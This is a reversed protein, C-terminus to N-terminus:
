RVDEDAILLKKYKGDVKSVPQLKIKFKQSQEAAVGGSAEFIYFKIGAKGNDVVKVNLELETENVLLQIAKGEGEQHATELTKRLEIIMQSLEIGAM